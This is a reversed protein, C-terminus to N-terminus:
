KTSFTTKGRPKDQAWAEALDPMRIYHARIRHHM